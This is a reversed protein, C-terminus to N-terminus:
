YIGFDDKVGMNYLSAIDKATKVAQKSTYLPHYDLEYRGDNMKGMRIFGKKLADMKLDSGFRGKIDPFLQKLAEEHGHISPIAIIKGQKTVWFGHPPNDPLESFNSLIKYTGPEATTLFSESVKKKVPRCDNVMKDGKKKMGVKRYGKWCKMEWLPFFDKFTNNETHLFDKIQKTTMGKAAKAAAGSVGKKHKKASMVAGFFRRQKESKAPM